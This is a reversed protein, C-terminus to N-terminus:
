RACRFGISDLATSPYFNAAIAFVGADTGLFWAGGRIPAGPIEDIATAGDGGFACYDDALGTATWTTSGTARDNWESVYEWLNGVM